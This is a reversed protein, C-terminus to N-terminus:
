TIYPQIAAIVEAISALLDAFAHVLNAVKQM